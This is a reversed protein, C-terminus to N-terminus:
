GSQALRLTGTTSRSRAAVHATTEGEATGGASTATMQAKGFNSPVMSRQFLPRTRRLRHRRRALVADQSLGSRADRGEPEHDGFCQLQDERSGGQAREPAGLHRPTRGSPRLDNGSAGDAKEYAFGEVFAPLSQPVAGSRRVEEIFEAKSAESVIFTDILVIEM